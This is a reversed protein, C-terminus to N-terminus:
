CYCLDVVYYKNRKIVVNTDVEGNPKRVVDRVYTAQEMRDKQINSCIYEEVPKLIAIEDTVNTFSM